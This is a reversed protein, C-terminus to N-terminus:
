EKLAYLVKVAKAKARNRDYDCYDRIPCHPCKPTRPLCIRQGHDVLLMNVKAWLNTPIVRKLAEESEEPTDTKVWGLRNSIRHVHIDVAIAPKHFAYNLICNATKPGVGPLSTLEDFTNPIQGHYKEVVMSSLQKVHRSKTKYFGIGYLAKQLDSEKANMLNHPTPYQEFLKKVIPITTVDKTRASLLTAILLQFPTFEKLQELMTPQHTQELTSFVNQLDSLTAM